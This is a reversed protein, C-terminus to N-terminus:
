NYKDAGFALILLLFFFGLTLWGEVRTVYGPTTVQLCIYLWLYAFLSFIATTIFVGMDAIKKPEDVAPICVASIFLLNFAASGVITSPGLAGAEEGLKGCTELVSLLIEPASSGLAMLSLNAITANWVAEEKFGRNGQDDVVEVRKTTSTIVEIAEMFIDAVIYIGLFLYMLFAFYVAALVKKNLLQLGPIVIYSM